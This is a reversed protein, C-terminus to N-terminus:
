NKQHVRGKMIIIVKPVFLMRSMMIATAAAGESGKEDVRIMLMMMMSIMMMTSIVIMMGKAMIMNSITQSRLVAEHLVQDVQLNQQAIGSYDGRGPLGLQLLDM